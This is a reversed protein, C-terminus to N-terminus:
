NGTVIKFLFDKRKFRSLLSLAKDYRREKDEPSPVHPVRMFGSSNMHSGSSNKRTSALSLFNSASYSRSHTCTRKGNM